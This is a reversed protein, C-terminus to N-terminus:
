VPAPPCPPSPYSIPDPLSYGPAGTVQRRDRTISKPPDLLIKAVDHHTREPPGVGAGYACVPVLRTLQDIVWSIAGDDTDGGSIALGLTAGGPMAVDIRLEQKSRETPRGFVPKDVHRITDRGFSRVWEYRVHAVTWLNV